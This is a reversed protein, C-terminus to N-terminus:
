PFEKYFNNRHGFRVFWVTGGRIIIGIRYDSHVKIRYHAKYRKLKKLNRIQSLENSNEVNVIAKEIEELLFRNTYRSIDRYFQGKAISEM